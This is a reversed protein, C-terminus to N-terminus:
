NSPNSAGSCTLNRAKVVVFRFHRIIFQRIWQYKIGALSHSRCFLPRGLTSAFYQLQKAPFDVPTLWLISRSQVGLFKFATFICETPDRNSPLDTQVETTATLLRVHVQEDILGIIRFFCYGNEHSWVKATIMRRIVIRRDVGLFIVFALADHHLLTTFFCM